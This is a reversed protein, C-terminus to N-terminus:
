LFLFRAFGNRRYWIALVAISTGGRRETSVQNCVLHIGLYARQSLLLFYKADKVILEICTRVRFLTCSCRLSRRHLLLVTVVAAYPILTRQLFANIVSTNVVAVHTVPLTLPFAHIAVLGYVLGMAVM